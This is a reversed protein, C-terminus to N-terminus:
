KGVCFEEFVRDIIDDTATEGTIEGLAEWAARINVEAFELAKGEAMASRAEAIEEAASELLLKHRAKTVLLSPCADLNGIALEGLREEIERINEKINCYGDDILSINIIKGSEFGFPLLSVADVKGFEQKLDSKNIALILKKDPDLLEAIETDESSLPLSGDLLFIAIDAKEYQEKAREIGLTEIEELSKRIGATDTLLVPIGCVDIWVELADRTTGPTATVIAADDRALANFLSSKGVNPKGIIVVRIGDRLLRGAEAGELMSAIIREARALAGAGVSLRAGGSQLPILAYGDTLSSEAGGSQLSTEAGGSKFSAEARGSELSVEAVAKLDEGEPEDGEEEDEFVEPYDIRVAIESLAALLFERAAGIQRSLRGEAQEKAAHYGRATRSRILDIVAGAQALDIRGNLFARKTFEGPQAPAAGLGCVLELIRRLPVGGGHCQIECVDEGTYSRPGKMFVVLAEDVTEQLSPEVIHGYYMVRDAFNKVEPGRFVKGLIELSRNGSIRVIGIGGEGPATSIAAITDNDTM